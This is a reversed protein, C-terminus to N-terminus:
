RIMSSITTAEYIPKWDISDELQSIRQHQRPTIDDFKQSALRRFRSYRWQNMNRRKNPKEPTVTNM